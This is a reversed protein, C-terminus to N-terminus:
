ESSFMSRISSDGGLVADHVSEVASITAWHDAWIGSAAPFVLGRTYHIMITFKSQCKLLTANYRCIGRPM